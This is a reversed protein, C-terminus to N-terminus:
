FISGLNSLTTHPRSPKDCEVCFSCEKRKRVESKALRYWRSSGMCAQKVGATGHCINPGYKWKNLESFFSNTHHFNLNRDCSRQSSCIEHGTESRTDTFLKVFCVYVYKSCIHLSVTYVSASADCYVRASTARLVSSFYCPLDFFFVLLLTPWLLFM